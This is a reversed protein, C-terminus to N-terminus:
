PIETAMLYMMAWDGFSQVMTALGSIIQVAVDQIAQEM